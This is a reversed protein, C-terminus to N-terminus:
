PDELDLGEIEADLHDWTIGYSCDRHRYLGDMVENVQEDTLQLDHEDKARMKVDEPIWLICAIMMDDPYRSLKEKLEAINV